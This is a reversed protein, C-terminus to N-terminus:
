SALSVSIRISVRPHPLAAILDAPDPLDIQVARSLREWAPQQALMVFGLALGVLLEALRTGAHKRRATM